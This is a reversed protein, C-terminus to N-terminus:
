ESWNGEGFIENMGSTVQEDTITTTGGGGTGGNNAIIKLWAENRSKPEIDVINGTAIAELMQEINSSM